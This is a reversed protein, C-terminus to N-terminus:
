KGKIKLRAARIEVEEQPSLAYKGSVAEQLLLLAQSKDGQGFRALALHALLVPPRAKSLKVAHELATVAEDYHGAEILIVGLTDWASEFQPHHTVAARAHQEALKLERLQFLVWALDNLAEPSPYLSVSKELWPRAEAWAKSRMQLVGLVYHALANRSDVLILFRAMDATKERPGLLLDLRLIREMTEVSKARFRLAEEFLTRAQLMDGKDMAQLAEILISNFRRGKEIRYIERRCLELTKVDGQALTV